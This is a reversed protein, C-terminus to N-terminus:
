RWLDGLSMIDLDGTICVIKKEGPVLDSSTRSKLHDSLDRLTVFSVEGESLLKDVVSLLAKRMQLYREPHIQIVAFSLSALSARIVDELISGLLDDDHIGMRDILIEDDPLSVPIDMLGYPRDFDAKNVRKLEYIDSAIKDAEALLNRNKALTWDMIVSGSSSYSFGSEALLPLLGKRSKLYPARYGTLHFGYEEFVKKAKSIDKMLREASHISFDEHHFGHVAIEFRDNLLSKLFDVRKETLIEGSVPMTIGMDHNKSDDSIQSLTKAMRRDSLGYRWIM